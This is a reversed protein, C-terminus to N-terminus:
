LLGGCVGFRSDKESLRVLVAAPGGRWRSCCLFCLREHILFFLSEAKFEVGEWKQSKPKLSRFSFLRLVRSLHTNLSVCMYSHIHCNTFLTQHNCKGVFVFVVWTNWLYKSNMLRIVHVDSIGRTCIFSLM